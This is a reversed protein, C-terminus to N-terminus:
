FKIYNKHIPNDFLFSLFFRCTSQSTKRVSQFLQPKPRSLRPATPFLFAAKISSQSLLPPKPRPYLGESSSSKWAELHFFLFHILWPIHIEWMLTVKKARALIMQDSIACSDHSSSDSRAQRMRKRRSSNEIFAMM